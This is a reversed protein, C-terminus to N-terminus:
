TEKACEERLLVPPVRKVAISEAYEDSSSVPDDTPHPSSVIDENIVQQARPSNIDHDHSIPSDM